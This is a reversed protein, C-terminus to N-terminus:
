YGERHVHFNRGESGEKFSCEKIRLRTVEIETISPHLTTCPIEKMGLMAAARAIRRGIIIRFWDGVPVVAIKGNARERFGYKRLSEVLPMIDRYDNDFSTSDWLLKDIPIKM